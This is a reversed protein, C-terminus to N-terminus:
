LHQAVSGSFFSLLDAAAIFTKLDEGSYQHFIRM